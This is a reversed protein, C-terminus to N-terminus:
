WDLKMGVRAIRPPVVSLPRLFTGSSWSTTQEPNANLLNFVDLLGAIRRSGSLGIGKEIRVDVLTINDTRRTGIPEALIRVNSYNLSTTFTRGFPQGSQHRVSPTVRVGWV